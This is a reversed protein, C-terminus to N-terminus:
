FGCRAPQSFTPLPLIRGVVSESCVRLLVMKDAVQRLILEAGPQKQAQSPQSGLRHQREWRGGAQGWVGGSLM